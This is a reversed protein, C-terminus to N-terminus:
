GNAVRKIWERVKGAWGDLDSDQWDDMNKLTHVLCDSCTPHEVSIDLRDFNIEKEIRSPLHFNIQILIPRRCHSCEEM